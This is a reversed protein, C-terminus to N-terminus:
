VRNSKDANSERRLYEKSYHVQLIGNYIHNHYNWFKESCIAKAEDLLVDIEECTKASYDRALDSLHVRLRGSLEPNEKALEDITM